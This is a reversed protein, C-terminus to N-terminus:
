PVGFVVEEWSSFDHNINTRQQRNYLYDHILKIAPLSFGHANLNPIILEHSLWDFEKSLGTLLAGFVKKDDVAGKWKELMAVISYQASFGKRFACHYKSLNQDAFVTLQKCLLKEKSGRYDKKLCTYRKCTKFYISIQLM